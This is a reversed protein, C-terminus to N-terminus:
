KLVDAREETFANLSNFQIELPISGAEVLRRQLSCLKLRNQSSTLHSTGSREWLNRPVKRSFFNLVAAYGPAPERHPHARCFCVHRRGGGERRRKSAGSAAPRRSASPVPPSAPGLRQEPGCAPGPTAGPPRRPARSPEAPPRAVGCVCTPPVPAATLSPLPRGFIGPQEQHSRPPPTERRGRAERLLGARLGPRRVSGGRPGGRATLRPPRAPPLRARSRSLPHRPGTSRPHASCPQPLTPEHLRSLGACPSGGPPASPREHTFNSHLNTAEALNIPDLLRM